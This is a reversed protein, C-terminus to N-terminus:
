KQVKWLSGKKRAPSCCVHPPVFDARALARPLLDGLQAEQVKADPVNIPANQGEALTLFPIGFHTLEAVMELIGVHGLVGVGIM